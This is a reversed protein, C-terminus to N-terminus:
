SRTGMCFAGFPGSSVQLEPDHGRYKEEPYVSFTVVAYHNFIETLLPWDEDRVERISFSLGKDGKV